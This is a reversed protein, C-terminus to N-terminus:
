LNFAKKFGAPDDKKFQLRELDNMESPKKTAAVGGGGNAGGGAAQSGALHQKMDPDKQAWLLWNDFDSAVINGDLDKYEAVVSGDKDFKHNILQKATLESLKDNKVFKGTISKVAVQNKSSLILTDRKSITELLDSHKREAQARELNLAEEFKGAEKAADIAKQELELAEAKAKDIAEQKEAKLAANTAKLGSTKEDFLKELEQKQKALAEDLMQQTIESM